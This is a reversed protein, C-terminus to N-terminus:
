LLRDLMNNIVTDSDANLVVTAPHKTDFNFKEPPFDMTQTWVWTKGRGIGRTAVKLPYQQVEFLSPHLMYAIAISDHLYLEPKGLAISAFAMSFPLIKNIHQATAKQSNAFKDIQKQSMLVKHTVDLGVMTIDWGASFVIDAAEPDGYINAEAAPNTNGPVLAAGGMLVVRKVEHAIQPRLQLALAINTLPGIPVLSIEGPHASVQSVIFEAANQDVAKGAPPPLFINGQGDEGHIHPIPGIYATDLPKEAGQAVPIDGHGAIELLRLANQTALDVHVNGFVSTIGVVELEKSELAYFIALTDDIGPDTDIIIKETM